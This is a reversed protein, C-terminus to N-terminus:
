WDERVNEIFDNIHNKVQDAFEMGAEGLCAEQADVDKHHHCGTQVNILCFSIVFFAIIVFPKIGNPCTFINEKNDM